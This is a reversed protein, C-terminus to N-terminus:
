KNQDQVWQEEHDDVTIVQQAGMNPVYQMEVQSTSRNFNPPTQLPPPHGSTSGQGDTASAVPTSTTTQDSPIGGDGEETTEMSM